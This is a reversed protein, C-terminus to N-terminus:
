ILFGPLFPWEMIKWLTDTCSELGLATQQIAIDFNQLKYQILAIQYILEPNRKYLPPCKTEYEFLAKEYEETAKLCIIKNIFLETNFERTRFEVRMIELLAEQYYQNNILKKIFLFASDDKTTDSYAYFYSNRTYYLALPPREYAPYDLYKFGNPRLTLSYNNHEHGCRILRDSTLMFASAFNKESFVKMGFNSCSPYMPCEQGRIGSIYKQYFGIYDLAASQRQKISPNFYYHKTKVSNGNVKENFTQGNCVLANFLFLVLLKGIM